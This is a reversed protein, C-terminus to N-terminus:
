ADIVERFANLKRVAVLWTCEESHGHEETGECWHCRGADEPFCLPGTEVVRRLVAILDGSDHMATEYGDKYGKQYACWETERVTESMRTDGCGYETTM